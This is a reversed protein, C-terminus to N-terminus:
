MHRKMHLALHDSRSFARECLHCQFPRHGTHKRFHRTLEDSRAFKWGCGEWNCHYPKEGTHTRMHAKLHSSKTYTKGCGPFECNHTAARKRTWSKRGRKQKVCGAEDHTYFDLLPSSPPTLMMGQLSTSHHQQHHMSYPGLFQPVGRHAYQPPYPANMYQSSLHNQDPQHHSTLTCQTRRQLQIPHANFGQAAGSMPPQHHTFAATRMQHKDFLEEVFTGAAIMCSQVGPETKIKYGLPSPSSAGQPHAPGNLSRLETYECNDRAKITRELADEESYSMEPTLLEAMLSRVPSSEAFSSVVGQYNQAALRPPHDTSDPLSGGGCSEPSEPLSYGCQQQQQTPSLNGRESNGVSNTSVTNSLIFELDLFKGLEDEDKHPASPSHVISFDVEIRASGTDGTAGSRVWEDMNCVNDMAKFNPFSTLAPMLAEAVAM